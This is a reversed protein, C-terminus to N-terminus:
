VIDYNERFPCGNRVLVYTFITSDKGSIQVHSCHCNQVPNRPFTSGFFNLRVPQLPTVKCVRVLNCLLKFLSSKISFRFTYFPLLMDCMCMKRFEYMAEDAGKNRFNIEAKLFYKTIVYHLLATHM